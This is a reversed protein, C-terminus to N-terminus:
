YKIETKRKDQNAVWRKTNRHERRVLMVAMMSKSSTRRGRRKVSVLCNLLVSMSLSTKGKETATIRHRHTQRGCVSM